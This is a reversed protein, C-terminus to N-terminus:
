VHTSIRELASPTLNTRQRRNVGGTAAGTAARRSEREQRDRAANGFICSKCRDTLGDVAIPSPLFSAAPRVQECQRCTKSSPLSNCM